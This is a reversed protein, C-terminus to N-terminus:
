RRCCALRPPRNFVSILGLLLWLTSPEPVIVSLFLPSNPAAIPISGLLTGARNYHYISDSFESVVYLTRGPGFAIGNFRQSAAVVATPFSSLEVGDTSYQHVTNGNQNALWLTGDVPDIALEGVNFAADFGGLRVGQQNFQHITPRRGLAVWLTDDPAVTSGLPANDGVFGSYNISGAHAGAPTFLEISRGFQSSVALTGDQFVSVDGPLNLEPALISTETGDPDFFNLGGLRYQSLGTRPGRFTTVLRGDPTIAAGEWLTSTGTFTDALTGDSRYQQINPELLNNLFIDGPQFPAAALQSSPLTFAAVLMLPTLFKSPSPM